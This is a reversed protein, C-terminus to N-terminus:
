ARPVEGRARIAAAIADGKAKAFEEISGGYTASDGFPDAVGWGFRNNEAEVACAEREEAVAAIIAAAIAAQHKSDPDEGWLKQWVADAREEPTMTDGKLIPVLQAYKGVVPSDAAAKILTVSGDSNQECCLQYGQAEAHDALPDGLLRRGINAQEEPTM